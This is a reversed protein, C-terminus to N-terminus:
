RERAGSQLTQVDDETVQADDLLATAPTARFPEGDAGPADSCKWRGLSIAM